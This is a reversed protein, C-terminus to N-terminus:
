MECLLNSIKRLEKLAAVATVQGKGVSVNKSLNELSGVQGREQQFAQEIVQINELMSQGLNRLTIMMNQNVADNERSLASNSMNVTTSVAANDQESEDSSVKTAESACRDSTGEGNSRGFKWFWTFKGSLLKREKLAALPKVDADDGQGSKAPVDDPSDLRPMMVEASDKNQGSMLSVDEPSNSIPLPSDEAHVGCLNVNNVNNSEFDNENISLNSAISSRESQNELENPPSPSDSFISSNEESGANGSFCRDEATSSFNKGISDPGPVKDEIPSPSKELLDESCGRKELDEESGLQHSLDELLKKRVSLKPEKKSSDVKAPSSPASQTRSLSLRVKESWSKKRNSVQKELSTQKLEEAKHLNRWKEEWYSDPVFKPTRPSTSDSLLSHGNLAVLRCQDLAVGNHMPLPKSNNNDADMALVQLSRAKEIIKKLNISDPFNLLRQLCSTANETALLSSRMHLVMSVAVASIFAGRPSGFLHFSSTSDDSFRNSKSNDSSFIEDWVILLHKLPFERGFLVRLWRLAFYQPEVGLAVLHSHLSADVISLLHYVASSAEIVPPLGTSSGVLPSSFFEAMSVAGGLGSMLADFMCYADHEMFKESLVIGLEGEAGYADCLM